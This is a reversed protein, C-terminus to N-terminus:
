LVMISLPGPKGHTDGHALHRRRWGPGQGGIAPKLLGSCASRRRWHPQSSSAWRVLRSSCLQSAKGLGTADTGASSRSKPDLAVLRAPGVEARGVRGSRATDCEDSGLGCPRWEDPVDSVLRALRRERLLVRITVAAGHEPGDGQASISGGHAEVVAWTFALGLGTGDAGHSRVLCLFEQLIANHNRSGAIADRSPWRGGCPEPLSHLGSVGARRPSHRRITARQPCTGLSPAVYIPPSGVPGPILTSRHMAATLSPSAVRVCRPGRRPAIAAVVQPRRRTAPAILGAGSAPIRRGGHGLRALTCAVM